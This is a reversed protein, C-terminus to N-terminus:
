LRCRRNNKKSPPTSKESVDAKTKAASSSRTAPGVALSPMQNHKHGPYQNFFCIRGANRGGRRAKKKRFKSIESSAANVGEKSKEAVDEQKKLEEVILKNNRIKTDRHKGKVSKVHNYLYKQIEQEQPALDHALAIGSGNLKFANNLIDKNVSFTVLEKVIQWRKNIQKKGFADSIDLTTLKISLVESRPLRPAGRHALTYPAGVCSRVPETQRMRHAVQATPQRDMLTLVPRATCREHATLVSNEILM